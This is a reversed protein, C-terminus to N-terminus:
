LNNNFTTFALKNVKSGKSIAKCIAFCDSFTKATSEDIRKYKELFKTTKIRLRQYIVIIIKPMLKARGLQSNDKKKIKCTPTVIILM